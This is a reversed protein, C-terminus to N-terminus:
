RECCMFKFIDSTPRVSTVFTAQLIGGSVLHWKYLLLLYNSILTSAMILRPAQILAYAQAHDANPAPRNDLNM